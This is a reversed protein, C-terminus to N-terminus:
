FNNLMKRHILLHTKFKIILIRLKLINYEIFSCQQVLNLYIIEKNKPSPSSFNFFITM